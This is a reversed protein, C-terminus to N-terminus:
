SSTISLFMRVNRSSKDRPPKEPDEGIAGLVEGIELLDHRPDLLASEEDRVVDDGMGRLELDEKGAHLAMRLEERHRQGHAIAFFERVLELSSPRPEPRMSTNDLVARAWAGTARQSARTTRDGRERPGKRRETVRDKGSPSPYKRATTSERLEM